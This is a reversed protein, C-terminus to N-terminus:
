RLLGGTGVMLDFFDFIWWLAYASSVIVVLAGVL